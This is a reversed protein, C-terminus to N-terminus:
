LNKIHRFVATKVVFGTMNAAHHLLSNGTQPLIKGSALCPYYQHFLAAKREAEEKKVGSLKGAIFRTCGCPTDREVFVRTIKSNEMEVKIRPRGFYTAFIKIFRNKSSKDTLSCFPSPFVCEVKMSELEKRIQNQMGRPFWETNDCPAILSNAKSLRVIGPILEQAQPSEGLFIVLDSLPLRPPLFEQPEEIFYPLTLPLQWKEIEWASPAFRTVNEFIRKGYNKHIVFLIRM